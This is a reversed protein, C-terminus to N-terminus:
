EPTRKQFKVADCGAGVAADILQKAIALSGNHNIGVEAVIFTPHGDGVWRDGIRIAKGMADGRSMGIPRWFSIAFRGFQVEGAPHRSFSTQTGFSKPTLTLWLLAVDLSPWAPCTMSTM